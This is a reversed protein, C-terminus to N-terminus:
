GMQWYVDDWVSRTSLNARPEVTRAAIDLVMGAGCSAAALAKNSATALAEPPAIATAM